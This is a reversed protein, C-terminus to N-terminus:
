GNDRMSITGTKRFGERAFVNAFLQHAGPVGSSAMAYDRVTGWAKFQEGAKKALMRAVGLGRFEPIVYFKEIEGIPRKTYERGAYLSVYGVPLDDCYAMYVAYMGDPAAMAQRQLLEYLEFDPEIDRTDSEAYFRRVLAMYDTFDSTVREIRYQM